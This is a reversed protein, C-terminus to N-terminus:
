TVKGFVCELLKSLGSKKKYGSNEVLGRGTKIAFILLSYYLQQFSSFLLLFNIQIKYKLHVLIVKM